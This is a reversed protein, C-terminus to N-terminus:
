VYTLVSIVVLTLFLATVSRVVARTSVQPIEHRATASLGEACCIAGTLLGPIFSKALLNLVDLPTVAAFVGRIFILPSEIEGGFLAGSLYGSILSFMVFIVTLAFVSVMVGLVRPWVLYVLPDIGQSDLLRVEGSVQMTGLETAIATGSRGIVIFNVLLPGLERVIVTVLIPGLLASQGMRDLWLHAQVVVSVGILLSALIIFWAAEVGTFLIQRVLVDRVTRHRVSRSFSLRALSWALAALYRLNAGRRRTSLGIAGLFSM